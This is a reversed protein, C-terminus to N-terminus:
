SSSTTTSLYFYVTIGSGFSGGNAEALVTTGSSFVTPSYTVDGSAQASSLPTFLVVSAMVIVVILVIKTRSNM